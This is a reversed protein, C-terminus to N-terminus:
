TGPTFLNGCLRVLPGWVVSQNLPPHVNPDAPSVPEEGDEGRESGQSQERKIQAAFLAMAHAAARDVMGRFVAVTHNCAFRLCRNCASSGHPADVGHAQKANM